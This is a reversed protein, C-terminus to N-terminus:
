PVHARRRRRRHHKGRRQRRGSRAPMTPRLAPAPVSAPKVAAIWEAVWPEILDARTFVTPHESSCEEPGHSAIGLEVDGSGSPALALLPGGSDGYCAGTGEGPPDIACLESVGSFPRVNHECYGARQVVTYAYSLRQPQSEQGLYTYGWGAILSRTGAELRPSDSPYSALAIAPATTPTSLILLAADGTLDSRDFGPYVLVRSVGSVQRPTATWEVNGTVVTFGPPEDLVGTAADEACHGATLVVNPAVVTGTCWFGSGGAEGAIFALSPFTRAEALAGGVVAAHAAVRRPPCPVTSTATATTGDAFSFDAAFPFGGHPCHEPVGVGRPHFRVTRGHVRETYLLNGPGITTQVSRISVDPGEPVGAILPVANDLSGSSFPGFGPILEGEFVVEADVPTRGDAYFVVVMNGNSAPPGLFAEISPTEEGGGGGLPVEVLASGSGIRSDPSCGEPGQVVLVAPQCVALGLDSTLYDIGEPLRLDVHTLPAPAQGGPGAIQFGFGITTSAGLRDPTFSAQLKVTEPAAAAPACAGAVLVAVAVCLSPIVGWIPAPGTKM